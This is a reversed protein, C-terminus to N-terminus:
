RRARSLLEMVWPMQKITEGAATRGRNLLRRILKRTRSEAAKEDRIRRLGDLVSTLIPPMAVEDLRPGPASVHCRPAHSIGHTGCGSAPLGYATTQPPLQGRLAAVVREGAHGDLLPLHEQQLQAYREHAIRGQAVAEIFDVVDDFHGTGGCARALATAEENLAEGEPNLLPLLPRAMALYDFLFSGPDSIMADSVSFAPLHDAQTDLVIGLADLEAQLAPLQEPLLLAQESLTPLLAPHPRWILCLRDRHRAFHAFVEPGLLDFTSFNSSQSYRHGFSFHSSWLIAVRGAIRHRLTSAHSKHLESLLRDFRPHGLVHVHADGAPCYRKYMAREADSRAVILDAGRQMPQAFQLRLNKAGAGVTLGYPIYVIRPVCARVRDFWLARPRERDYPHTFIVVDFQGPVLRLTPDWEVYPVGEADLVARHQPLRRASLQADEANCPLVWVTPRFAADREMQRWVSAVNGWAEARQLLFLVRM